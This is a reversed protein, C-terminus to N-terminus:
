ARTMAGGQLVEDSRHVKVRADNLAHAAEAIPEDSGNDFVVCEWDEYEQQRITYIADMVQSRRSDPLRSDTPIVISIKIRDSM